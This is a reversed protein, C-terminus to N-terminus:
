MESRHAIIYATGDTDIALYVSPHLPANEMPPFPDGSEGAAAAFIQEPMVSVGLVFAGAGLMGMLFDRRSNGMERETKSINEIRVM